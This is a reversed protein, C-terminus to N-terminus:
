FLDEIDIIEAAIQEKSKGKNRLRPHKEEGTLEQDRLGAWIPDNDYREKAQREAFALEKEGWCDLAQTVAMRALDPWFGRPFKLGLARKDSGPSMQQWASILFDDVSPM